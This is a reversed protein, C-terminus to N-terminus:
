WRVIMHRPCKVLDAQFQVRRAEVCVCVFLCVFVCTASFIKRSRASLLLAVPASIILVRRRLSASTEEDREERERERERESVCVCM